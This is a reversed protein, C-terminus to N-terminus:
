LQVQYSPVLQKRDFTIAHFGDFIGSGVTEPLIERCGHLRPCCLKICKDLVIPRGFKGSIIDSAAEPRSNFAILYQVFTRFFRTRDSLRIIRDTLTSGGVKVYIDM